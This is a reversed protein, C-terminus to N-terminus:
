IDDDGRDMRIQAGRPLLHRLSDQPRQLVRRDMNKSMRGSPLDVPPFRIRNVQLLNQFCRFPMVHRQLQVRLRLPQVQAVHIDPPALIAIPVSAWLAPVRLKM